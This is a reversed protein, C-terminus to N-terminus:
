IDCRSIRHFESMSRSYVSHIHTGNVFDQCTLECMRDFVGLGTLLYGITQGFDYCWNFPWLHECLKADLIEDCFISCLRLLLQLNTIADLSVKRSTPFQIYPECTQSSPPTTFDCQVSVEGMNVHSTKGIIYSYASM